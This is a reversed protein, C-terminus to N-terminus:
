HMFRPRMKEPSPSEFTPKKPLLVVHVNPPVWMQIGDTDTTSTVQRPNTQKRVRTEPQPPGDLYDLIDM